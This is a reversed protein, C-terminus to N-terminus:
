SSAARRPLPHCWRKGRSLGSCQAELGAATFPHVYASFILSLTMRCFLFLGKERIVLLLCIATVISSILGQYNHYWRKGTSHRFVLQKWGSPRCKPVFNKGMMDKLSKM